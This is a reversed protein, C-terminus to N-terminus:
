KLIIKTNGVIKMKEDYGILQYMGSNLEELNIKTDDNLIIRKINKGHITVVDIYHIKSDKSIINILGSTPNPYSKLNFETETLEDVSTLLDCDIDGFQLFWDTKYESSGEHYCRLIDPEAGPVLECEAMDEVITRISGMREIYTYDSHGFPLYGDILRSEIRKLMESGFEISDVKTIEFKNVEIESTCTLMEFHVTDGVLVDYDYILRLTDRWLYYVQEGDQHFFWDGVMRYELNDITTDKKSEIRSFSELPKQFEELSYADNIIWEAGIPAFDSQASIATSYLLIVAITKIAKVM